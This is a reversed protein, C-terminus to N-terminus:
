KKNKTAGHTVKMINEHGVKENLERIGHLNTFQLINWNSVIWYAVYHKTEKNSSM